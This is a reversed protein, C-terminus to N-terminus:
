GWQPRAPRAYKTISRVHPMVSGRGAAFGGRKKVPSERGTAGTAAAGAVAAGTAAALTRSACTATVVAAAIAAAAIATVAVAAAIAGAIAATIAAAIAATIAALTRSASGAGSHQKGRHGIRRLLGQGVVRAHVSAALECEARSSM